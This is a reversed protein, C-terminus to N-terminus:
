DKKYRLEEVFKNTQNIRQMSSDYRKTSLSIILSDFVSIQTVRASISDIPYKLNNTTVVLPYDSCAVIPSDSYGTMCGTKAGNEHALKLTDVVVRTRGSQSVGFVFDQETINLTSQKASSSDSYAIATIGIQMLRRQFDRAFDGSAGIGYIYVIRADFIADVIKSFVEKDIQRLTNQLTTINARFVKEMITDADDTKDVYSAYTSEIVANDKVLSIKLDPYGRFGLSNCCRVVTAKSVGAKEALEGITMQVINDHNSVIFDAVLKERATLKNYRQEIEKICSINTM